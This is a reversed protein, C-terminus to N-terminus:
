LRYDSAGDIDVVTMIDICSGRAAPAHPQNRALLMDSDINDEEPMDDRNAM